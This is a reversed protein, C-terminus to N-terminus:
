VSVRYHSLTTLVVMLTLQATDISILTCIAGTDLLAIVAQQEIKVRVYHERIIPHKVV